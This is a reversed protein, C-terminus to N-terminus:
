LDWYMEQVWDLYEKTEFVQEGFEKGIREEVKEFDESDYLEWWSEAGVEEAVEGFIEEFKEVM